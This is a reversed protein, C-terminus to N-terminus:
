KAASTSPTSAPSRNSRGARISRRRYAITTPQASSAIALPSALRLNLTSNSIANSSASPLTRRNSHLSGGTPGVQRALPLTHAGINAGIDLVLWGPSVLKRLAARTQREYINGLYIAFDIGQALDLDFTIGDRVAIQRDTRGLLTRGAHVARYVIRAAGIKHATKMLYNWEGCTRFSPVGLPRAKQQLNMSSPQAGSASRRGHGM